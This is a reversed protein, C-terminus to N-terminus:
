LIFGAEPYRKKGELSIMFVTVQLKATELYVYAKKKPRNLQLVKELSLINKKETFLETWGGAGKGSYM